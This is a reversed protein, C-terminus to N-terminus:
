LSWRGARIGVRRRGGSSPRARFFTAAKPAEKGPSRRDPAARDPGTRSPSEERPRASSGHCAGRRQGGRRAPFPPDEGAAAGAGRTGEPARNEPPHPQRCERNIPQTKGPTRSRPSNEGRGPNGRGLSSIFSRTKAPPNSGRQQASQRNAPKLQMKTSRTRNGEMEQAQGHRRRKCTKSLSCPHIHLLSRGLPM